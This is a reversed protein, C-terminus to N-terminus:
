KMEDGSSMCMSIRKFLCKIAIIRDLNGTIVDWEM